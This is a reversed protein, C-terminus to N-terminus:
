EFVRQAKAIDEVVHGALALKQLCTYLLSDSESDDQEILPMEPVDLGPVGPLIGCALKDAVESPV